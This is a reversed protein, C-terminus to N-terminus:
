NCDPCILVVEGKTNIYCGRYGLMVTVMVLFAGGGLEPFPELHFVKKKETM